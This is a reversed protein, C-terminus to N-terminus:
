LSLATSRARGSCPLTVASSVISVFCLMLRFFKGGVFTVYPKTLGGLVGAVRVIGGDPDNQIQPHTIRANIRTAAGHMLSNAALEHLCLRLADDGPAAAALWTDLAAIAQGDAPLTIPETVSCRLRRPM